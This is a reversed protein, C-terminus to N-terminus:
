NDPLVIFSKPTQGGITYIDSGIINPYCTGEKLSSKDFYMCYPPNGDSVSTGNRADKTSLVLGAAGTIQFSQVEDGDEFADGKNFGGVSGGKCYDSIDIQGESSSGIPIHCEKIEKGATSETTAETKAKGCNTKTYLIIEGRNEHVVSQDFNAKAVIISSIQNNTVTDTYAGSPAQNMNPVSIAVFACRGSYNPNNFVVAHYQILSNKQNIIELSKTFKAFNVLDPVSSSVFLPYSKIAPSAPTYNNADYLYIGPNNFLFHISKAGAIDGECVKDKCDIETITGKYNDESYTYVKLIYDVPFNWRVTNTIEGNVSSQDVDICEQKVNQEGAKKINVVVGHNCALDNIKITTLQSNITNLILYCGFLVCVGLLTNTIKEKAAGVKSPDGSSTLWETGAMLIMIVAIFAGIAIGLYFLYVVFDAATTSETITIGAITPYDIAFVPAAVFLSLILIITKINM